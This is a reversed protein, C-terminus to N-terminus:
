VDGEVDDDAASAGRRDLEALYQEPSLIRIPAQLLRQFHRQNGTVLVTAGHSRAVEAIHLDYIRGGRVGTARGFFGDRREAPLQHVEFRELIEEEVLERAPEPAVQYPPPLRTIVAFFELCCHWATQPRPIQGAALADFIAQPARSEDGEDVIGSVLVSTDFFAPTLDAM